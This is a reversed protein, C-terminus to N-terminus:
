DDCVHSGAWCVALLGSLCDIMLVRLWFFEMSSVFHQYSFEFANRTLSAESLCMEFTMYRIMVLNLAVFYVLAYQSIIIM